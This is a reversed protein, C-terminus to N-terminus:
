QLHNDENHSFESLLRLPEYILSLSVESSTAARLLTIYHTLYIDVKGKRIIAALLTVQMKQKYM